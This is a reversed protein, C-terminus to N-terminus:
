AQPKRAPSVDGDCPEDPCGSPSTGSTESSSTGGTAEPNEQSVPGVSCGPPDAIQLEKPHAPKQPQAYEAFELQIIQELRARDAIKMYNRQWKDAFDIYIEQLEKVLTVRIKVQKGEATRFLIEKEIHTKTRVQPKKKEDKVEKEGTLVSDM